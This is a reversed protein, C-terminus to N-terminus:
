NPAAAEACHRPSSRFSPAKDQLSNGEEWIKSKGIGLDFLLSNPCEYRYRPARFRKLPRRLSKLMDDVGPSQRLWRASKRSFRTQVGLPTKANRGGQGCHAAARRPPLAFFYSALAKGTFHKASIPPRTVGAARRREGRRREGRSRLLEGVRQVFPLSGESDGCLVICRLV